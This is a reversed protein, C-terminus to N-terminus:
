EEEDTKKKRIIILFILILVMILLLIGAISLCILTNDWPDDKKGTDTDPGDDDITGDDDDTTNDDDLTDDDDTTDDDPIEDDDITGDDDPYGEIIISVFPAEESEMGLPCFRVVTYSYYMDVGVNLDDFYPETTNGVREKSYDDWKYIGYQFPEELDDDWTLKFSMSTGNRAVSLGTIMESPTRNILYTIGRNDGDHDATWAGALIDDFGDGNVDGANAVCYGFSGGPEEGIFSADAESLSIDNRWGEARGYVVYIKGANYPYDKGGDDNRYSGIIIDDFGDGNVDGGGSAWRGAEDYPTEGWFSADIDSLETGNSWGSETGLILYSQGMEPMNENSMHETVIFDALGDGNVDGAKCVHSGALSRQGVFTADSASVSTDMEWGSAKGLFLYAHGKRQGAPSDAFYRAGVLIDDYGDGNTDGVIDVSYGFQEKNEKGIFSANAYSGINLNTSWGSSRGFIVYIQGQLDGSEENDQAGIIIDDFGDGNVDGGGGLSRGFMDENAEGYWSADANMLSTDMSWGTEKGLILFARGRGSTGLAEYEDAGIVFDDFGDANVDGVGALNIGARDDAELGIFSADASSLNTDGQFGTSRGFFLYVQGATKGGEDNSYAGIIIDDLDDGNVDGVGAVSQGSLDHNNEGYFRLGVSGINVDRTGWMVPEETFSRTPGMDINESDKYSGSVDNMNQIFLISTMILILTSALAFVTPKTSTIGM